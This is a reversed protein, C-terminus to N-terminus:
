YKINPFICAPFIFCDYNLTIELTCNTPDHFLIFQFM